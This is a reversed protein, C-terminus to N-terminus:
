PASTESMGFFATPGCLVGTGVADGNTRLSGGSMEPASSKFDSFPDPLNQITRQRPNPLTQNGTAIEAGEATFM